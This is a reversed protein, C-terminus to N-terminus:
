RSGFFFCVGGIMFFCIGAIMLPAGVGTAGVAIMAIGAVVAAGGAVYAKNIRNIRGTFRM